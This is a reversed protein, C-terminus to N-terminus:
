TATGSAPGLASLPPFNCGPQRQESYLLSFIFSCTKFGESLPTEIGMIGMFHFKIWGFLMLCDLILTYQSSEANLVYGGDRKTMMSKAFAKDKNCREFGCLIEETWFLRLALFFLSSSLDKWTMPLSHHKWLCSCYYILKCHNQTARSRIKLDSLDLFCFFLLMLLSKDRGVEQFVTPLRFFVTLCCRLVRSEEVFIRVVCLVLVLAGFWVSCLMNHVFAWISSAIQVLFIAM